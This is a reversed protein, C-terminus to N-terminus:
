IKCLPGKLKYSVGVAFRESCESLARSKSAIWALVSSPKWSLSSLHDSWYLVSASTTIVTLVRLSVFVGKSRNPRGCLWLGNIKPPFQSMSVEARPWLGQLRHWQKPPPPPHRRSVYLSLPDIACIEELVVEWNPAHTQPCASSFRNLWLLFVSALIPVGPREVRYPRAKNNKSFTNQM